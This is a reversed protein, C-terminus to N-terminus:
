RGRRGGFGKSSVTSLMMRPGFRDAIWLSSASTPRNPRAQIEFPAAGAIVFGGGVDDAAVTALWFFQAVFFPAARRGHVAGPVFRMTAHQKGILRCRARRNSRWGRRCIVRIVPVSDFGRQARRSDATVKVRSLLRKM